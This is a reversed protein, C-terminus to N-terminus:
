RWGFARCKKSRSHTTLRIRHPLMRRSVWATSVSRFSCGFLRSALPRAPYVQCAGEAGLFPCTFRLRLALEGYFAGRLQEGFEQASGGGLGLEIWNMEGARSPDAPALWPSEAYYLNTVVIVSAPHEILRDPLKELTLRVDELSIEKGVGIGADFLRLAPPRPELLALEHGTREAVKWKENCTNVFALYKQRNDYFRFPRNDVHHQM